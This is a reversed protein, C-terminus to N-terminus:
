AASGRAIGDLMVERLFHLPLAKGQMEGSQAATSASADGPSIPLHWGDGPIRATAQSM